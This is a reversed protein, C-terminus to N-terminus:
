GIGEPREQRQRKRRARLVEMFAQMRSVIQGQQREKGPGVVNFVLVPLDLGRRVEEAILRNESGCHSSAFISSIVVGEAGTNRIEDLIRRARRTSSGALSMALVGEALAELPPLDERLPEKVQQIVYETGAVQGGLEEAHNLLLPDAPPTVWYLRLAEPPIVWDGAVQRRQVTDAVHEAVAVAEELDAYGSLALFELNMMELAPLAAGRSYYAGQRASEVARRLRNTLGMARVLAAEDFPSGTAEELRAALARLQDALFRRRAAHDEATAVPDGPFDFRHPIEFWFFPYGLGHAGQIVAAYDDCTAGVSAVCLDPPPFYCNKVFAGLAARVFCCDEGLGRRAAATFLDDSETLFPTWWHCEPYFAVTQPFAYVLPALPGLDGMLAVVKKGMQRARYLRESETLMFGWLRLSALSNDFRLKHLYRAGYAAFTSPPILYTNWATRGAEHYYRYRDIREGPVAAFLRLWQASSIQAAPPDTWPAGLESL